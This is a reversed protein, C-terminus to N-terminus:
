YFVTPATATWFTDYNKHKEACKWKVEVAVGVM